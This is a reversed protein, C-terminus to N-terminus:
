VLSTLVLFFYIFLFLKKFFECLIWLWYRERCSSFWEALTVAKSWLLKKWNNKKTKGIKRIKRSPLTLLSWPGLLSTPCSPSYHETWVLCVFFGLSESRIFGKHMWLVISTFVGSVAMVRDELFCSEHCFLVHFLYIETDALCSFSSYMAVPLM